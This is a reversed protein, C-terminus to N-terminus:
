IREILIAECKYVRTFLDYIVRQFENNPDQWHPKFIMYLRTGQTIAAYIHLSKRIEEIDKYCGYHLIAQCIDDEQITKM